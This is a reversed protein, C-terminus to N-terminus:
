ELLDNIIVVTIISPSLGVSDAGAMAWAGTETGTGAGAPASISTADCAGIPAHVMLTGAM